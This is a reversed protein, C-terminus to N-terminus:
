FMAKAVAAALEAYALGTPHKELPILYGEERLDLLNSCDIVNIGRAELYPAIANAEIRNSPHEPFIVVDFGIADFRKEFVDKAAAFLEATQELQSEGIPPFDFRVYRAIQEKALLDYLATRWPHAEEFSGVRVMAGTKADREYCPFFRGYSQVNRFSGTTRGIHAPHYVFIARAARERIQDAFGPQELLAVMHQVSWGGYACNYVRSAPAREALQYALTEDGNVGSGFAFSGGFILLASERRKEPYPDPTIRRGHEDFSYTATYVHEDGFRMTATTTIGPRPRSGFYPDFFQVEDVDYQLSMRTARENLNYFVIEAAGQLLVIVILRNSLAAVRPHNSTLRSLWRMPAAEGRRWVLWAGVLGTCVNLVLLVTKTDDDFKGDPSAIRELVWVNLVLSAVLMTMGAAFTSRDHVAEAVGSM